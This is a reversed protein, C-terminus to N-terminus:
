SYKDNPNVPTETPKIWDTANLFIDVEQWQRHKCPSTQSQCTEEGEGRNSELNSAYVTSNPNKKTQNEKQM